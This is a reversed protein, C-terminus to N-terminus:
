KIGRLMIITGVNLESKIEMEANLREAREKLMAVGYQNSRIDTLVFGKGHDHINMEWDKDHTLIKFYVDKTESHKRINNFAEQIIGFLQIEESPMFYAEKLLIDIEVDIGSVTSWDELWNKIRNSFSAQEEPSIRLNFIAQRLHTDISNVLAGAEEVKGKKLHVKLLFLTQAISDHLEKALREREEYIARMEREKTIWQNKKDITRFMWTAFAYSIIFTLITIFFNGADMSLNHLLVSHRFFEFGGILITPILITFIKLKRYSM